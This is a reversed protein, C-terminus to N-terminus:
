DPIMIRTDPTRTGGGADRFGRLRLSEHKQRPRWPRRPRAPTTNSALSCTPTFSSTGKQLERPDKLEALVAAWSTTATAEVALRESREPRERQLLEDV